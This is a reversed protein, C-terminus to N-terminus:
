LRVGGKMLYLAFTYLSGLTIVGLFAVRFDFPFGSFAQGFLLAGAAINGLDMLKEAMHTRGANTISEKGTMISSLM